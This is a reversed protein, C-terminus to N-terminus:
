GNCARWVMVGAALLAALAWVVSLGVVEFFGPAKM